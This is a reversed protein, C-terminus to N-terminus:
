VRIGFWHLVRGDIVLLGAGIILTGFLQQATFQEHLFISGMTIASVPILMTVLLVVSAGASQIIKFFLLYAISTSIVALGALAAWSKASVHLLTAPESFIASLLAMVISSIILQCTATTVPPIGQLKTKAWLGSVGYSASAILVCIVGVAEQDFDLMNVGRLVIVGALGTVLGFMRRTTLKEAGAAAMTLAGFLPTTANIVSALGAGIFHQGYVILSFPLVNNMLSMGGAAIWTKTETPLRGQITLHVPILFVAALTVRALVILLAPLEQVAVAIFIFSGGWLVSLALLRLWDLTAISNASNSV